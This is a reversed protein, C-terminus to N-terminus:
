SGAREAALMDKYVASLENIKTRSPKRRVSTYSKIEGNRVNPVVTAYVWYFGGNKRLNKVYGHWKTGTSITDWLDKFAARPMDPHRLISHLSGMLEERSWGSMIVFADNAHTIVGKTDTTSVILRGDPFQKEEDITYITQTFGEYYTQEYQEHPVEPKPMQPLLM